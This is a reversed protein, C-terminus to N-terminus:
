APVNITLFTTTLSSPPVSPAFSKVKLIPSPEGTANSASPCFSITILAPVYVIVSGATKPYM